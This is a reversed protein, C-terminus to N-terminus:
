GWENKSNEIGDYSLPRAKHELWESLPLVYQRIVVDKEVQLILKCRTEYIKHLIM